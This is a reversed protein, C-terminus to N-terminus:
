MIIIVVQLQILEQELVEQAEVAEPMIGLKHLVVVAVV